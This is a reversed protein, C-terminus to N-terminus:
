KSFMESLWNAFEEGNKFHISTGGLDVVVPKDLAPQEDNMWGIYEVVEEDRSM